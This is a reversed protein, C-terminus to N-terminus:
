NGRAKEAEWVKVQEIFNRRTETEYEAQNRAELVAAVLQGVKRAPM